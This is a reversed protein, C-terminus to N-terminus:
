KCTLAPGAATCRVTYVVTSTTPAVTAPPLTTPARTTSPAVTTPPPLPAPAPVSGWVGALESALAPWDDWGDHKELPPPNHPNSWDVGQGDSFMASMVGGNDLCSQIRTRLSAQPVNIECMGVPRAYWISQGINLDVGQYYTGMLDYLPVGAADVFARSYTRSQLMVIPIDGGVVSRAVRVMERYNEVTDGVENDWFLGLVNPWAPSAKVARLMSALETWNHAYDFKGLFPNLYIFSRMGGAKDRELLGLSASTNYSWINCNFRKSVEGLESAVRSGSLYVCNPFFPRWAGDVGKVSFAGSGAALRVQTGNFGLRPGPGVQQVGGGDFVAFDDVWMDGAGTFQSEFRSLFVGVYGTYPATFTDSIEQWQNPLGVSQFSLSDDILYPSLPNGAYDVNAAYMSISGATQTASRAFASLTYVRGAVVQVPASVAASYQRPLRISASGPIRSVLPDVASGGSLSLGTADVVQRNAQQVIPGNTVPVRPSLVLKPPGIVTSSPATLMSAIVAGAGVAATAVIGLRTTSHTM